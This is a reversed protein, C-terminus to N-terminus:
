HVNSFKVTIWHGLRDFNYHFFPVHAYAAFCLGFIIAMWLIGIFTDAWISEEHYHRHQHHMRRFERAEQKAKYKWYKGEEKWHKKWGEKDDKYEAYNKKAQEIFEHANFPMSNAAHERAEGVDAKPIVFMMIIYALIGVGHSVLTVVVFILRVVVVDMDFYVALGNCVGAIIAGEKVRYLRRPHSDKKESNKAQADAGSETGTKQSGDVPGMEAIITDVEKRTIVNKNPTIYKSFKEAIAQEFDALIEDKDPNDALAAGAQELYAALAAHADDEVQYARGNLHITTVTKM